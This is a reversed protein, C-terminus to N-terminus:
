TSEQTRLELYLTHSFPDFTSHPSRFILDVKVVLAKTSTSIKNVSDLYSVKYECTLPVVSDKGTYIDFEKNLIGETGKYLNEWSPGKNQYLEEKFLCFAEQNVQELQMSILNELQSKRMAVHPKILPFLCLAILTLSILLEFLLFSRKRIAQKRM